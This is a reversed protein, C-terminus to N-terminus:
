SAHSNKSKPPPDVVIFDSNNIYFVLVKILNKGSDDVEVVDVLLQKVDCYFLIPLPEHLM